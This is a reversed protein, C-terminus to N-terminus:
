ALCGHRTLARRSGPRLQRLLLAPLTLAAPEPRDLAPAHLHNSHLGALASERHSHRRPSPWVVLTRRLADAARHPHRGGWLWHDATRHFPLGRRSRLAVQTLVRDERLTNRHYQHRRAPA